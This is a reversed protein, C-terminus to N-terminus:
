FTPWETPHETLVIPLEALFRDAEAEYRKAANVLAVAQTGGIDKALRRMAKAERNLNSIQRMRNKMVSPEMM